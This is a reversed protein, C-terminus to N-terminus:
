KAGEKVESEKHKKFKFYDVILVGIAWAAVLIGLMAVGVTGMETLMEQVAEPGESVATLFPPVPSVEGHILHEGALVFSGTFLALELYGLKKSWKVDSGFKYEKPEVKALENKKENHKVIHRAVATGIAAVATVTFCAM